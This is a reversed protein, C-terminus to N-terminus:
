DAGIKAIADNLHAILVDFITKAASDNETACRNLEVLQPLKDPCSEPDTIPVGSRARTDMLATNQSSIVNACNFSSVGVNKFLPSSTEWCGRERLFIEMIQPENLGLEQWQAIRNTYLLWVRGFFHEPIGGALDKRVATETSTMNSINRPCCPWGTKGVKSPPDTWGMMKSYLKFSESASAHVWLVDYSRVNDRLHSVAGLWDEEVPQRIFYIPNKHIGEYLTLVTLVM